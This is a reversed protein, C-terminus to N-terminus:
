ITQPEETSNKSYKGILVLLVVTLIGFIATGVIFSTKSNEMWRLFPTEMRLVSMLNAGIHAIIAGYLHGSKEVFWSLVIGIVTAYVFQVMNMHMMGFVFSTFVAAGIRNNRNRKKKKETDTVKYPVLIDCIRGYLVSRYLMEELIPTLLCAGLLEFLVGGGFFSNTVEQYGESIEELVTMGILNNLTIGVAAGAFFMLVADLIKQKKDKKDFIQSLHEQCRTPENRDKRYFHYIFPITIATAITQLMMYQEQVDVGFKGAIAAGVNMAISLIVFYVLMPYVVGGAKALDGYMTNKQNM